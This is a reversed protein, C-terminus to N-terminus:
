RATAAAAQAKRMRIRARKELVDLEYGLADAVRELWDLRPGQHQGAEIATVQSRAVQAEAALQTQSLGQRIREETFVAVVFKCLECHLDRPVKGLPQRRKCPCPRKRSTTM